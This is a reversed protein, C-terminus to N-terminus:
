IFLIHCTGAVMFSIDFLLCAFAIDPLRFAWHLKSLCTEQRRIKRKESLAMPTCLSYWPLFRWSYGKTSSPFFPETQVDIKRKCPFDLHKSIYMCKGHMTIPGQLVQTIPSQSYILCTFRERRSWLAAHFRSDVREWLVNINQHYSWEKKKRKKSPNLRSFDRLILSFVSCDFLVAGVSIASLLHSLEYQNRCPTPTIYGHQCLVCIM